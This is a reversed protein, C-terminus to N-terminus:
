VRVLSNGCSNCFRSDGTSYRGCGACLVPTGTQPKRAPVPDKFAWALAVVWGVFTWGLFFNIAFVSSCCPKNWASITPLFYLGIIIVLWIFGAVISGPDAEIAAFLPM